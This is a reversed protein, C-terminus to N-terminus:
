APEESGRQRLFRIFEVGERLRRKMMEPSRLMEASMEAIKGARFYFQRYFDEVSDYIETRSLNPYSLAATQIGREDTLKTDDEPLWGNERAQRYLATGPYPAAISVQLSHPNIEKAFRITDKITQATEGPLGLIFTGHITIGLDRCDKTFQRARDV